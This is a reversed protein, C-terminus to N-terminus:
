LMSRATAEPPSNMRLRDVVRSKSQPRLTHDAWRYLTDEKCRIQASLVKRLKRLKTPDVAKGAHAHLERDLEHALQRVVLHEARLHATERPEALEFRPLLLEEDIRLHRLLSAEFAPWLLAAAAADQEAAISLEDLLSLLRGDDDGLVARFESQTIHSDNM